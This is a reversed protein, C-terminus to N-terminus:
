VGQAKMFIKRCEFLALFLLSSIMLAAVDGFFQILVFLTQPFSDPFFSTFWFTTLVLLIFIGRFRSEPFLFYMGIVPLSLFILKQDYNQGQVFLALFAVGFYILVESSLRSSAFGEHVKYGEIRTSKNFPNKFSFIYTVVTLLILGFFKREAQSFVISSFGLKSLTVEFWIPLSEIGFTHFIGQAMRYNSDAYNVLSMNHITSVTAFVCAVLVFYRRNGLPSQLWIRLALVFLLPLTFLKMFVTCLVILFPIMLHNKAAFILAVVLLLFVPIDFSGHVIALWFGPSVFIFFILFEPIKWGVSATKAIALISIILAFFFFVGLVSSFSEKVGLLDLLLAMLFGYTYGGCGDPTGLKYIDFGYEISCSAMKLVMNLDGFNPDWYWGNTVGLPWFESLYLTLYSLSIVLLLGFVRKSALLYGFTKKFLRVEM